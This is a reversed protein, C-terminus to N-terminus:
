CISATGPIKFKTEHVCVLKVKIEFLYSKFFIIFMYHINKLNIVREEKDIGECNQLRKLTFKIWLM